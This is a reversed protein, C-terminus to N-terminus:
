TGGKRYKIGLRYCVSMSVSRGSTWCWHPLHTMKYLLEKNENTTLSNRCTPLLFFTFYLLTFYTRWNFFFYLLIFYLLTSYLYRRWQTHTNTRKTREKNTEYKVYLIAVPRTNFNGNGISFKRRTKKYLTNICSSIISIRRVNKCLHWVLLVNNSIMEFIQNDVVM